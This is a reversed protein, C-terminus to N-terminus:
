IPKPPTKIGPGKDSYTGAILITKGATEPAAGPSNARPDSQPKITGSLVLVVTGATLDQIERELRRAFKATVVEQGNIIFVRRDTRPTARPPILKNM